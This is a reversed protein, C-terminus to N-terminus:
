EVMQGALKQLAEILQLLEQKTMEVPDGSKEVMRLCFSAGQEIWARIDGNAMEFSDENSEAKSMRRGGVEPICPDITLDFLPLIRGVCASQFAAGRFACTMLVDSFLHGNWYLWLMASKGGLKATSTGRSPLRHPCSRRPDRPLVKQAHPPAA